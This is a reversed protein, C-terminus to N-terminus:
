IYRCRQPSPLRTSRKIPGPRSRVRRGATHWLETCCRRRWAPGVRRRRHVDFETAHDAAALEAKSLVLPSDSEDDSDSDTTDRMKGIEPNQPIGGLWRNISKEPWGVAEAIQE